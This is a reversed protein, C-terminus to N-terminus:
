LALHLNRPEKVVVNMCQSAGLILVGRVTAALYWTLSQQRGSLKRFSKEAHKVV